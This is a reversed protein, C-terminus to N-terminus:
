PVLETTDSIKGEVVSAKLPMRSDKGIWVTEKNSGGDAPTLEIKYSDFTGAPVTVREMGVVKLNAVRVTHSAQPNLALKELDFSRFATSYGDALPLCGISVGSSAEDSFVPGGLDVAVPREQGSASTSTGTVKNGTFEVEIAVPKWPQGQKPFHQFLEKRLILTGKELTSIDTVPGDPTDWTTTVTWVGDDDKITVSHTSLYTGDPQMVTDRYKWTGAPPDTAPKPVGVSNPDATKAQVVTKPDVTVEKLRAVVENSGASPSIILLTAGLGLCSGVRWGSTM